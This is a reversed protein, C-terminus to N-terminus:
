NVHWSLGIRIVVADSTGFDEVPIVDALREAEFRIATGQEPRELIEHANAAESDLLFSVAPCQRSAALGAAMKGGHAHRRGM